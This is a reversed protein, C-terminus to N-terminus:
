DSRGRPCGEEDEQVWQIVYARPQNEFEIGTSYKHNRISFTLTKQPIDLIAQYKMSWDMGLLLISRESEIVSFNHPIKAAGITLPLDETYGVPKELSNLAQVPQSAKTTYPIRLEKLLGTSIISMAAGSDPIAAIIKDKIRVNM